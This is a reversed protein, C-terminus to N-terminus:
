RDGSSITPARSGPLRACRGRRKGPSAEANVVQYGAEAARMNADTNSSWMAVLNGDRQRTTAKVAEDSVREDEIATRIWAAGFDDPEM